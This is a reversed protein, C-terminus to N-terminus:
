AHRLKNLPLQRPKRNEYVSFYRFGLKDLHEYALDFHACIDGYHHADSGITILEGGLERYRKLIDTQPHFQQLGYRYGSTNIEIGHGNHIVSTLITDIIDAYDLYSLVKNEYGGYRIIFDLHGFVDYNHFHKVCELINEFYRLYAQQQKKGLFFDGTYFDLKDAMHMSCIVFDFPYHQLLQEIKNHVHLQYGIEVGFILQLRHQSSEQLAQFHAYYKDFDINEFAPDAYDYDVHDTFALEKLGLTLAQHLMQEMSSEGDGSYDTHIHYDGYYSM